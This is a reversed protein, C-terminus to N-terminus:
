RSHLTRRSPRSGCLTRGTCGLTSPASSEEYSPEATDTPTSNEWSEQVQETPTPEGTLLQYAQEPTLADTPAVVSQPKAVASVTLSGKLTMEVDGAGMHMSLSRFEGKKGTQVTGDIATRQTSYPSVLGADQLPTIDTLSFDYSVGQATKQETVTFAADIADRDERSMGEASWLDETLDQVIWRKMLGNASFSLLPNDWTGKMESLMVYAKGGTVVSSGRMRGNVGFQPVAIDLTMKATGQKQDPHAFGSVWLSFYTTTMSRSEGHLEGSVTAADASQVIDMLQSASPAALAPLPLLSLALVSLLRTTHM